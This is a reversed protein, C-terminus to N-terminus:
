LFHLETVLNPGNVSGRSESFQFTATRMGKGFGQHRYYHKLLLTKTSVLKSAEFFVIKLPM